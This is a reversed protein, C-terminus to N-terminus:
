IKCSYYITEIPKICSHNEKVFTKDLVSECPNDVQGKFEQLSAGCTHFLSSTICKFSKIEQPTLEKQAFVIRPKDYKSCEIVLRTNLAHQQLPNFLINHMRNKSTKLSLMHSEHTETGTVEDFEKYHKSNGSPMPDPLHKLHMFNDNALRPPGCTLCDKNGCKKASFFYIQERCCHQM